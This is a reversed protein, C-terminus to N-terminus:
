NLIAFTDWTVRGGRLDHDLTVIRRREEDWICTEASALILRAQVARCQPCYVTPVPIALSRGCHCLHEVTTGSARLVDHTGHGCPLEAGAVVYCGCACRAVSTAVLTSLERDSRPPNVRLAEPLPPLGGARDEAAYGWVLLWSLYEDRACALCYAREHAQDRSAVTFHVRAEERWCRQCLM